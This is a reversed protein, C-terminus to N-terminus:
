HVVSMSTGIDMQMASKVTSYEDQLPGVKRPESQLWRVPFTRVNEEEYNSAGDTKVKSELALSESTDLDRCCCSSAKTFSTSWAM